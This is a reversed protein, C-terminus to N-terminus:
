HCLAVFLPVVPRKIYRSRHILLKVLDTHFDLLDKSPMDFLKCNHETLSSECLRPRWQKLSSLALLVCGVTTRLFMTAYTEYGRVPM